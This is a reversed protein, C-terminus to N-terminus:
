LYKELFGLIREIYEERNVDILGGHKGGEVLYLEKPEGAAEFLHHAHEVDILPDRTGHVILIPRPSIQGIDDIPRVQTPDFDAKDEMFWMILDSFPSSTIRTFDHVGRELVKQFSEYAADAMLVKAEPIRAMARIATAGGMSAGYIGIRQPDIEGQQSLFEFAAQVDRVEYLGMTTVDGGSEGHNRLDFLLVGYGNELLISGIDLFDDRKGSIGHVFIVAAGEKYLDSEEDPLILWGVLDIGDSSTFHVDRWTEIGFDSPLKEPAARRPHVLTEARLNCLWILVFGFIGLMVVVFFSGLRIFRQKPTVKKM